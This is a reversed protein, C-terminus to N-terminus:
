RRLRLWAIGCAALGAVMAGAYGAARMAKIKDKARCSAHFDEQNNGSPFPTDPVPVNLFKCLPEWGQRVDYELLREPPVLSRVQDNHAAFVTKANAEFSGRFFRDWQIYAMPAYHWYGWDLFSLIYLVRDQTRWNITSAVSNYWADVDRSTLIVKAEPYAAVLEPAFCAAPFDTM